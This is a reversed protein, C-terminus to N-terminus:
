RALTFCFRSGGAPNEEVWIRGGHHEVIRRCAALGIGHGSQDHDVRTFMSFISERHDAPIGTANDTVTILWDTPRERVAVVCAPSRDPHRYKIANQVLNQLVQRLRAREARVPRPDGAVEVRAGTDLIQQHLDRRIEEVLEQVPVLERRAGSGARSFELLSSVLESMREAAQAARSVWDIGRQDLADAYEAEVLELYGRITALPAQLDHSAMMAFAELDANTRELQAKQETLVNNIKEIAAHAKMEESLDAVHSVFHLPEDRDNFVLAVSLDVWISQGDARLYRKRMRYSQREGALLERMLDLDAELDDPHTIDQFTRDGLEEATYGVIQCLAENVRMFSGTLSVLAIGVPANDITLRWREEAAELTPM